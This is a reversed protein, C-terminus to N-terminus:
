RDGYKWLKLANDALQLLWHSRTMEPSFILPIHKLPKRILPTIPPNTPDTIFNKIYLQEASRTCASNLARIMDPNRVYVLSCLNDRMDQLTQMDTHFVPSVDKYWTAAAVVVDTKTLHEVAIGTYFHM